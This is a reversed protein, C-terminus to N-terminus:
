REASLRKGIRDGGLHRHAAGIALDVVDQARLHLEIIDPLLRRDEAELEVVLAMEDGATEVAHVLVNRLAQSFLREPSAVFHGGEDDGEHRQRQEEADVGKDSQREAGALAAGPDADEERQEDRAQEEAIGVHQAARFRAPEFSSRLPSLSAM